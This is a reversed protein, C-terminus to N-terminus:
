RRRVKVHIAVPKHFWYSTTKVPEEAGMEFTFSHLLQPIAKYIECMSINKGLCVRAGMGFQMIHCDMNAVNAGAEIWREPRFIGADEGFVSKDFHIVAPNVGVRTNGPIWYGGVECGCSPAHRPFSVGTIPHMRIGEKICAGLYPLRTAETYTIHPRSLQHSTIAADIESTLKEYVARNRFINYLIGSLTLATTESGAFFGSFSEMKIDALEFNLAKGNKHSIDLLKGLIDARQPKTNSDLESLAFLRRKITANTAETLSALATLAGRVKPLLFGTLLFLPRVYTPMIGALFQVPILDDTAAIYGLHDGGAELFGFMKSFFLEGIVDYAYMRTWLWLDFSEKRDAMEGLKEEWLDICADVYQESQLISSMSYVASVIRRRDAHQKGGIASFHDPFRAWPPRFALYFDTKLTGSKVGYLTKVAAPDSTILEDPAIRVIPGYKEHLKRQTKEANGPLVHLVTWIRSVSAWFPGPFQALPHFWRTYTIWMICYALSVLLALPFLLLTDINVYKFYNPVILDM